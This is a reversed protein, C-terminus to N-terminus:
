VKTMHYAQLGSSLGRHFFAANNTLHLERASLRSKARETTLVGPSIVLMLVVNRLLLTSSLSSAKQDFLFTAPASCAAIVFILGCKSEVV